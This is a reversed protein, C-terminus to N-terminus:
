LIETELTFYTSVQGEENYNVIYYDLGAVALDAVLYASIQRRPGTSLAVVVIDLGDVEFDGDTYHDEAPASGLGEM